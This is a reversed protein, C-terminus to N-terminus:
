EPRRREDCVQVASIFAVPGIKLEYNSCLTCEGKFATYYSHINTIADAVM